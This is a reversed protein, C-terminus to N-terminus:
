SHGVGYEPREPLLPVPRPCGKACCGARSPVSRTGPKGATEQSHRHEASMGVVAPLWEIVIQPRIGTVPTAQNLATPHRAVPRLKRLATISSYPSRATRGALPPAVGATTFSEFIKIQPGATSGRTPQPHIGAVMALDCM